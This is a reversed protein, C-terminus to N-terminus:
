CCCLSKSHKKKFFRRLNLFKFKKQSKVQVDEIDDAELDLEDSSSSATFIDHDSESPEEEDVVAEVLHIKGSVVILGFIGRFLGECSNKPSFFSTKM